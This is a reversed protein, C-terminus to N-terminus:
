RYCEFGYLTNEGIFLWGLCSKLSRFTSIAGVYFLVIHFYFSAVSSIALLYSPIEFAHTCDSSSSLALSFLLLASMSVSFNSLSFYTM